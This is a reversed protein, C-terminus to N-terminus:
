KKLLEKLLSIIEENQEIIRKLYSENQENLKDMVDNNSVDQLLLYLSYLQSVNATNNLRNEIEAFNLPPRRM